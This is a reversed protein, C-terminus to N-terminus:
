EHNLKILFGVIGKYEKRSEGERWQYIVKLLKGKKAIMQFVLNYDVGPDFLLDVIVLYKTKLSFLKRLMGGFTNSGFKTAEGLFLHALTIDFGETFRVDRFDREIIEYNKRSVCDRIPQLKRKDGPYVLGKVIVSKFKDALFQISTRGSGVDLIKRVKKAPIDRFLNELLQKQKSSIKWKM